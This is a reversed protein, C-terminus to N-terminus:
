AFEFETTLHARFSGSSSASTDRETCILSNAAIASTLAGSDFEGTTSATISFDTGTIDVGDDRCTVKTAGNKTNTVVQANHRLLTLASKVRSVENAETSSSEANSVSGFPVFFLVNGTSTVIGTFTIFKAAGGGGGLQFDTGADDTFFLQNPTATKVWIQGSGPVDADAAAQEKLFIVGGNDINNGDLNLDQSQAGLGTIAGFVGSTLATNTLQAGGAADAHDHAANAFSAITPTVITPSTGFVLLGSGTEDSMVGALQASTTAAFFGLNNTDRALDASDSLNTSAGSVETGLAIQSSLGTVVITRNGGLLPITLIRDSTIEASTQLVVDFTGAPNEIHISNDKFTQIFDGFVNAQDNYVIASNLQGKATITIKTSTHSIIDDNTVKDTGISTVGANDMTVDGSMTVAVPVGTADGLWFNASAINPIDNVRDISTVKIRGVGVGGVKLVHGINQIEATGTPKVNTFEGATESVYLTDGISFGTTVINALVGTLTIDGNTADLVDSTVIGIAPMTASSSADAALILPLDNPVDFGSIYVVTGRTITVGSENRIEMHETDAHNTNTFSDLIKNTLVQSGTLTAVTADIALTHTAGADVIGLGTGAAIIQATTTDANISVIGPLTVAITIDDAGPTLTINTGAVLSKLNFTNTPSEDKFIGSGAGVNAIIVLDLAQQITASFSATGQDIEILATALLTPVPTLEAITREDTM